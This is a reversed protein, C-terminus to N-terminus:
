ASLRPDELPFVGSPSAGRVKVAAPLYKRLYRVGAVTGAVGTVATPVTADLGVLVLTVALALAVATLRGLGSTSPPPASAVRFSHVLVFVSPAQVIERACWALMWADPIRDAVALTWGLNVHLIKDVWADLIAGGRTATGTRRALAGDLVDSGVALLYIAWAHEGLGWWPATAGVALRAFSVLSPPTWLDAFRPPGPSRM